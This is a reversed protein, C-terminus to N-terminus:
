EYGACDQLPIKSRVFEGVGAAVVKGAENVLVSEAKYIGEADAVVKGQATLTGGSVPRIFEIGFKKTLVFVDPVVSSVAFYSADDLMRFYVSGHMAAAAHFYEERVPLTIEVEGEGIQITTGPYLEQIPANLYM